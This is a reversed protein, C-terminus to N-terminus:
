AKEIGIVDYGAEEIAAKIIEDTINPSVEANINESVEATVLKKVEVDKLGIEKLADVVHNVSHSCTMSEVLIKKTM